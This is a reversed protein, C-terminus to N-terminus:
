SNLEWYLTVTLFSALISVKQFISSICNKVLKEATDRLQPHFEFIVRVLSITNIHAEM